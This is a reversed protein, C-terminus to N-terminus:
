LTRLKIGCDSCYEFKRASFFTEITTKNHLCTSHNSPSYQNEMLTYQAILKKLGTYGWYFNQEVWNEGSDHTLNLKFKYDEVKAIKCQLRNNKNNVFIMGVKLDSISKIEMLIGKREKSSM